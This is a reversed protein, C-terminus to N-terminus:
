SELWHVVDIFVNNQAWTVDPHAERLFKAILVPMVANSAVYLTHQEVERYKRGRVFALALNAHRIDRRLTGTRRYWLYEQYRIGARKEEKRLIRSEEALSKVRVRLNHIAMVKLDFPDGAHEQRKAARAREQPSKTKKRTGYQPHLQVPSEVEVVSMPNIRYFSFWTGDPINLM